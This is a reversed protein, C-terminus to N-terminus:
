GQPGAPRHPEERRPRERVVKKPRRVLAWQLISGVIWLFAVAGAAFWLLPFAFGLIVLGVLLILAITMLM